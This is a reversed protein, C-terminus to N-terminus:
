KLLAERRLSFEKNKGFSVSSFIDEIEILALLANDVGLKKAAYEDAVLEEHFVVGKKVAKRREKNKKYMPTEMDIEDLCHGEEHLLTFRQGNASLEFFLDDVIIVSGFTDATAMAFMSARARLLETSKYVRIGGAETVGIYEMKPTYFIGDKKAEFSSKFVEKIFKLKKM